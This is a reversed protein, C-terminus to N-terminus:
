QAGEYIFGTTVVVKMGRATAATMAEEAGPLPRIEGAAVLADFASEFAANARAADGEDAFLQAFVEAKSRGMTRRVVDDMEHRRGSGAPVGLTDLAASFARDVLGGDAVTTGALDLCVMELPPDLM